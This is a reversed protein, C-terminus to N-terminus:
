SVLIARDYFGVLYGDGKFCYGALLTASFEDDYDPVEFRYCELGGM